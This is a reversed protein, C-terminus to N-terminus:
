ICSKLLGFAIGIMAIPVLLALGGAFILCVILVPAAIILLTTAIVKALGWTIKFALGIAKIFLWICFITIALEIIFELM